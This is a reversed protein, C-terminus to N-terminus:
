KPLGSGYLLPPLDVDREGPPWPLGNDVIGPLVLPSRSCFNLVPGPIQPIFDVVIVTNLYKEDRSKRWTRSVSAPSGPISSRGHRLDDSRVLLDSAADVNRM